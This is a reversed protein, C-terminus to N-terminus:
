SEDVEPSPFGRRIPVLSRALGHERAYTWALWCAVVLISITRISLLTVRLVYDDVLGSMSSRAFAFTGFPTAMIAVLVLYAMTSGEPATRRLERHGLVALAPLLM